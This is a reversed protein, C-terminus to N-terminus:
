SFWMETNSVGTITKGGNFYGPKNDGTIFYFLRIFNSLMPLFPFVWKDTSRKGFIM